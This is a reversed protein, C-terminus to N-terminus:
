TYIMGTVHDVFITGGGYTHSEKEQGWSNPLRRVFCVYQDISCTDGLIKADFTVNRAAPDPQTTFVGPNQRKARAIQCAACM